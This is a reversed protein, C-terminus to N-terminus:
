AQVTLVCAQTAVSTGGCNSAAASFSFTGAQPPTGTLIVSNQKAQASMWSPLDSVGVTMPLSGSFSVSGEWRVGVRAPAMAQGAAQVPTCPCGDECCSYNCIMDKIAAITAPAVSGICSGAHHTVPTTNEIGRTVTLVGAANEVKVCEYHTDGRVALYTYDGDDPLIAALAATDKASLPLSKDGPEMRGSTYAFYYDTKMM